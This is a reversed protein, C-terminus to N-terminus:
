SVPITYTAEEQTPENDGSEGLEGIQQHQEKEYADLQMTTAMQQDDYEEM